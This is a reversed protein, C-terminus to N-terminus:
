RKRWCLQFSNKAPHVAYKEQLCTYHLAAGEMSEIDANFQKIFQQKLLGSDSVKNVTIAKVLPLSVTNL